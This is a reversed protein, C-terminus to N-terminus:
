AQKEKAKQEKKAKIDLMREAHEGAHAQIYEACASGLPDQQYQSIRDIYAPDKSWVWEITEDRYQGKIFVQEGPAKSSNQQHIAQQVENASAYEGGGSFGSASLARGIASTECNELASTKNIMSSGRQEEAYGTGLLWFNAGCDAPDRELGIEAKMVVHKDDASVLSTQIYGHAGYKERFAAVREAVTVYDKGHIKIPM